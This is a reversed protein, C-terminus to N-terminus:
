LNIRSAHDAPRFRCRDGSNGTGSSNGYTCECSADFLCVPHTCEQSGGVVYFAFPGGGLVPITKSRPPHIFVCAGFVRPNTHPYRVFVPCPQYEPNRASGLVTLRRRLRTYFRDEVVFPSWLGVVSRKQLSHLM